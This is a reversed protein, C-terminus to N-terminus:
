TTDGLLFRAEEDRDAFARDAQRLSGASGIRRELRRRVGEARRAAARHVHDARQEVPLAALFLDPHALVVMANVHGFGLSTLVAARVREGRALSIPRHGFALHAAPRILPDVSELTANGPVVGTELVDLLGQVQWAAAGGKSHGTVTKQSVVLLPNGPSRGLAEAIRHHLDAENPDNAETSTDHKSVVAVDDASLGLGALARGLPSDKGGRAAALLGLGPAPISSSIGDGFSAAYALVARVPLGLDRAVDGRVVLLTGGGQSEVFGRRRLDNARSSEDPEIGMAELEDSDATAHMDAFGLVGEPTLDDYGGAVVALAKGARIKDWAAELSVAATACAAVPHIMSGYSGVYAQVVHAAVVNGLAEQLRDNQREQDLMRDLLLRRLSAMGGMGAGQTNAVMAPHVAALLEAPEIGAEAFAEATCALNVLAMRDATTLLDGPVGFRGLDTGDPLQGVVRRPYGVRRAVRVAAGPRHVVTREGTAPDVRVEAHAPDAARHGEALEDSGAPHALPEDLVVPVLVDFGAPDLVGDDVMTRLGVAGRVRDRYRGALDAEDVAEGSAADVWGGRYGQRQYRVLGCLWALEAVAAPGLEGGRELDRRVTATGCPGLEAGGVVVVLDELRLDPPVAPLDRPLEAAPVTPPSPLAAVTRGVEHSRGTRAALAARLEHARRAAASGAQLPAGVAELAARLDAVRDLGGALDLELPGDAAAARVEPGACAAVLAGMEAASFTRVGLQEEVPGALVDNGGMLGTGRVWGIRAGVLSVHRGWRGHEAHWRRLLAELGAKTEAYPGDGGLDGHNPSLPLVVTAPPRRHAGVLEAVAGVLREVGLLQLRVAVEASSGADPLDGVTTTAAFPLVLTPVLPGTRLDPRGRQPPAPDALWAVLADVDAFAALNAPVLHLEAGAGAVEAYVERWARRRARTLSSTAVVVTAGARLLHRVAEAAISGPGAGTVLVVEDRRDPADPGAALALGAQGARAALDEGRGPDPVEAVVVDGAPGLTTVPRTAPVALAVRRPRAATALITAAGDHGRGTALDALWRATAAVVEDEAFAAARDAVARLRDLDARGDLVAHAVEVLDWRATAWGSCFRVARRPDFAPAVQGARDTGLEADLLALRDDPADPGSGAPDLPAPEDLGEALARVARRLAETVRSSVVPAEAGASTAAQRPVAVVGVRAAAAQAARDLLTRAEAPNTAEPVEALEGGRASPGPRTALALWALAGDTLGPGFGWRGQLHARATARDIGAGGLARTVGAAVLDRLYAGPFRYAPAAEALTAALDGVPVEHVGETGSLGLERGLDLLVQNRRSSAGGFLEEITEGDTLQDLRVRAQAALVMRFAEAAPVPVDPVEGAPGPGVPVGEAPRGSAAASGGGTDAPDADATTGTGAATAAAPSGPGRGAATTGTAVDTTAPRPADAAPTSGVPAVPLPDSGDGPGDVAPPEDTAWVLDRDVEAHRLEVPPGPPPEAAYTTRALGSLVPGTAPGVEVLRRCALGGVSRPAALTRQTSVWRM